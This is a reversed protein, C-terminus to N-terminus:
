LRHPNEVMAYAHTRRCSHEHTYRHESGVASTGASHAPPIDVAPVNAMLFRLGVRRVLVGLGFDYADKKRDVTTITLARKSSATGPASLGYYALM